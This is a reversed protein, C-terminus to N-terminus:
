STRTTASWCGAQVVEGAPGLVFRVEGSEFEIAGRQARAKAFL